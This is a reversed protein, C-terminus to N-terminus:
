RRESDADATESTGARHHNADGGDATKGTQALGDPPCLAQHIRTAAAIRAASDAVTPQRESESLEFVACPKRAHESRRPDAGAERLADVLEAPVAPDPGRDLLESLEYSLHSLADAGESRGESLMAAFEPDAATLQQLMPKSRVARLALDRQEESFGFGAQLWARLGADHWRKLVTDAPERAASCTGTDGRYDSALLPIRAADPQELTRRWLGAWRPFLAPEDRESLYHLLVLLTAQKDQRPWAGDVIAAAAELLDASPLAEGYAHDDFWLWREFTYTAGGGLACLAKPASFGDPLALLAKRIRAHDHSRVTAVFEAYRAKKDEFAQTRRAHVLHLSLPLALVAIVAGITVGLLAQGIRRSLGGWILVPLPVLLAVIAGTLVADSYDWVDTAETGRTLVVWILWALAALPYAALAVWFVTRNSRPGTPGPSSPPLDNSAPPTSGAM